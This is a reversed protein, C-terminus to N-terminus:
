PLCAEPSFRAGTSDTTCTSFLEPEFVARAVHLTPLASLSDSRVTSNEPCSCSAPPEPESSL